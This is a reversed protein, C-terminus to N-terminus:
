IDHQTSRRCWETGGQICVIIFFVYMRLGLVVNVVRVMEGV